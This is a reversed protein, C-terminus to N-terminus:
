MDEDIQQSLFFSNDVFVFTMQRLLDNLRVTNRFTKISVDKLNERTVSIIKNGDQIYIDEIYTVIKM